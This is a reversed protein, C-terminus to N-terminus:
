DISNFFSFVITLEDKEREKEKERKREIKSFDNLIVRDSSQSTEVLM